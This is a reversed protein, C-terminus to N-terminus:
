PQSINTSQGKEWVLSNGNRKMTIGSWLDRGEYLKVKYGSKNVADQNYKRSLLRGRITIGSPPVYHKDSFYELFLKGAAEKKLFVFEEYEYTQNPNLLILDQELIVGPATDTAPPNELKLPEGSSLDYMTFLLCHNRGLIHIPLDSENTVMFRITLKENTDLIEQNTTLHLSLTDKSKEVASVLGTFIFMYLLLLIKNM